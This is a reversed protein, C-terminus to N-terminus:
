PMGFSRAVFMHFKRACLGQIVFAKVRGHRRGSVVAVELMAWCGSFITSAMCCQLLLIATWVPEAEQLQGEASM